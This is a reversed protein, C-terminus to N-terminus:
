CVNDVTDAATGTAMQSSIQMYTLSHHPYTLSLWCWANETTSHVCQQHIILVDSMQCHVCVCLWVCSITFVFLYLKHHLGFVTEMTQLWDNYSHTCILTYRVCVIGLYRHTPSTTTLRTSSVMWSGRGRHVCQWILCVVIGKSAAFVCKGMARMMMSMWHTSSHISPWM